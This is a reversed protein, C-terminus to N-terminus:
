AHHHKAAPTTLDAVVVDVAVRLSADVNQIAAVGCNPLFPKAENM